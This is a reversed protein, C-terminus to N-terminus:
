PRAPPAEVRAPSVGACSMYSTSAIPASAGLAADTSTGRASAARMDAALPREMVWVEARDRRFVGSEAEPRM